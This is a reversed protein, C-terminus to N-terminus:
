EFQGKLIENQTPQSTLLSPNVKWAQVIQGTSRCARRQSPVIYGLERLEFTRGVIRNISRPIWDAIEQNTADGHQKSLMEIANFVDWQKQALAKRDFMIIDHSLKKTPTAVEIARPADLM